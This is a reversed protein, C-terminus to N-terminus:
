VNYDAKLKPRFGSKLTHYVGSRQMEYIHLSELQAHVSYRPLAMLNHQNQRRVNGERTTVAVKYGAKKALCFERPGCAWADGFPYAFTEIPRSLLKELDDKNKCIEYWVQAEPLRSLFPHTVTHGGIDIMSNEAVAQIEAASMFYRDNLEYQLITFHRRADELAHPNRTLEAIKQKYFERPQPREKAMEEVQLWWADLTRDLIGSPVFITAPANHRRLIPLALELNDRYGDDMTLCVFKQGTRLMKHADRLAVIPLGSQRIHGLLRDFFHSSM